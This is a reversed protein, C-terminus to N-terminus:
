RWVIVGYMQNMNVCLGYCTDLAFADYATTLLFACLFRDQLKM